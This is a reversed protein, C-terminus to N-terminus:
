AGEPSLSALGPRTPRGMADFGVYFQLKEEDFLDNEQALKAVKLKVEDVSMGSSPSIAAAASLVDDRSLGGRQLGFDGLALVAQNVESFVNRAEQESLDREAILRQLMSEDLGFDAQQAQYAVTAGEAVKMLEPSAEGKLVSFWDGFTVDKGLEVAARQKYVDFFQSNQAAQQFIPVNELFIQDDIKSDLMKQIQTNYTGAADKSYGLATLAPTVNSVYNSWAREPETTSGYFNKIGPYLTQTWFKTKRQEALLQEPSWEGIIANAMIRQMEPDSMMKGVMSPDRVGAKRAADDMIEKSFVNWNGAMGIIEEAAGTAHVKRDVWAPDKDVFRINDGVAARLQAINDFQYGVWNDTGPPMQYIQFWRYTGDPQRSRITRGGALVGTPTGVKPAAPAGPELPDPKTPVQPAKTDPKTPTKDFFTGAVNILNEIEDPQAQGSIYYNMDGSIAGATKLRTYLESAARPDSATALGGIATRIAHKYEDPTAKGSSYYNPDGKILGSQVLWSWFEM